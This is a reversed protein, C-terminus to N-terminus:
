CYYPSPLTDDATNTQTAVLVQVCVTVVVPPSPLLSDDHQLRKTYSRHALM